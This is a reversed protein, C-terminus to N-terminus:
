AWSKNTKVKKITSETVGYFNALEIDTLNSQRIQKAKDMSLKCRRTNRSNEKQTVWKCNNPSYCLNGFKSDKDITLGEEYGNELSWNYFSFFDKRWEECVYVGRGGYNKYSIHNKDYCRAKMGKWVDYLPHQRFDHTTRPTRNCGCSKYNGRKLEGSKIIVEKGCDCICRHQNSSVGITVREVVLLMGFRQGVLNSRYNCGCSTTHGNMVQYISVLADNGCDCKCNFYWIGNKKGEKKSFGLIELKNFKKGIFSELYPIMDGKKM